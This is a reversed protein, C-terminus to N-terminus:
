FMFMNCVNIIFFYMTSVSLLWHTSPSV